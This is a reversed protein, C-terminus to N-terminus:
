STLSEAKEYLSIRRRLVKQRRRFWAVGVFLGSLLLVAGLKVSCFLFLIVFGSMFLNFATARLLRLDYDGIILEKYADTFKLRMVSSKSPGIQVDKFISKPDELVATIGDIVAGLSYCWALMIFVFLASIDKIAEIYEKSKSLNINLDFGLLLLVWITGQFGIILLEIRLATTSM